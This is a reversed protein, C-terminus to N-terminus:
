KLYKEPEPVRMLTYLLEKAAVEVCKKRTKYEQFRLQEGESQLANEPFLKVIPVFAITEYSDNFVPQALMTMGFKFAFSDLASEYDAYRHKLKFSDLLDLIHHRPSLAKLKKIEKDLYASIM